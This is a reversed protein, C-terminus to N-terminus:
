KKDNYSKIQQKDKKIQIIKAYISLATLAVALLIAIFEFVSQLGQMSYAAAWIASFIGLLPNQQLINLM